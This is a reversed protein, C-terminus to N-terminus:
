VGWIPSNVTVVYFLAEVVPTALFLSKSRLGFKKWKVVLVLVFPCFCLLYLCLAILAASFLSVGVITALTGPEFGPIERWYCSALEQGPFWVGLLAVIIFIINAVNVFKVM